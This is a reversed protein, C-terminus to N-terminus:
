GADRREFMNALCVTTGGSLEHRLATILGDIVGPHLWKMNIGDSFSWQRVEWEEGECRSLHCAAQPGGVRYDVTM